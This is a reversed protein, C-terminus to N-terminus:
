NNEFKNQSPLSSGYLKREMVLTGTGVIRGEYEIVMFYHVGKGQTKMWDYREHFQAETVNGTSTLVQICEFFGKSYDERELPRITYGEPFSASIEPSILSPSFLGKSNEM